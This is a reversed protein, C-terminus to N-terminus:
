LVGFESTVGEAKTLAIPKALKGSENIVTVGNSTEYGLLRAIFQYQGANTRLKVIGDSNSIGINEVGAGTTDISILRLIAGKLPKKQNDVISGTKFGFYPTAILWLQLVILAIYLATVIYNGISPTVSVANLATSLGWFMLAIVVVRLVQMIAPANEKWFYRVQSTFPLDVSGIQQMGVDLIIDKGRTISVTKAIPKFGERVFEIKYEGPDSVNLGYKGEFDSVTQNVFTLKGLENKYLRVTVLGLGKFSGIEYILGWYKKKRWIVAGLFYASYNTLSGTAVAATTVAATALVAGALIEPTINLTDEVFTTISNFADSVINGSGAEANEDDISGGTTDEDPVEGSDGIASSVPTTVVTYSTPTPEPETPTPTPTPTPEPSPTPEPEPEVEAPETVLAGATTTFGSIVWYDSGGINQKNATLTQGSITATQGDTLTGISPCTNTVEALSAVGVCVSVQTIGAQALAIPVYLTYENGAGDMSLLNGSFIKSSVPDSELNLTSWDFNDTFTIGIDALPADTATKLNGTVAGEAGTTELDVPSGDVVATLNYTAPLSDVTCPNDMLWDVINSLMPERFAADDIGETDNKWVATYLVTKKSSTCTLDNDYAALIPGPFGGFDGSILAEAGNIPDVQDAYSGGVVTYTSSAPLGQTIPHTPNTVSVLEPNGYDESGEATRLYNEIFDPSDPEDWSEYVVEEGEFFIRGTGTDMYEKLRTINSLDASFGYGDGQTYIIANYSNLTDVSPVGESGNLTVDYGESDLYDYMQQASNSSNLSDVYIILIDGITVQVFEKGLNTGTYNAYEWYNSSNITEQTLNTASVGLSNVSTCSPSVQSVDAATPCTYVNTDGPSRPVFISYSSGVFGPLSLVNGLYTETNTSGYTLSSWDLDSTLDIDFEALIKSTSSNLVRVTYSGFYEGSELNDGSSADIIDLGADVNTINYSSVSVGARYTTNEIVWYEIGDITQQSVDTDADNLVIRGACGAGVGSISTASPCIVLADRGGTPVYFTFTSGAVGALSGVGGFYTKSAGLDVDVDLSSWNRDTTMNTSPILVAKYGDEEITLEVSANNVGYPSGDKISGGLYTVDASGLSIGTIQYPGFNSPTFKQIYVDHPYPASSASAKLWALLYNGSSDLTITNSPQFIDKVFASVYTMSSIPTHTRRNGTAYDLSVLQPASDTSTPNAVFIAEVPNSSFGLSHINSLSQSEIEPGWSYWREIDYNQLSSTWVLNGNVDVKYVNRLVSEGFFISGDSPHSTISLMTGTVSGPNFISVGSALTVGNAAFLNTGSADYKKIKLDYLDTGTGTEVVYVVFFNNGDAISAQALGETVSATNTVVISSALPTGASNIVQTYVRSDGASNTHWVIAMGGNGLPTIKKPDMSFTLATENFDVGNVGWAATGSLDFKQAREQKVAFFNNSADKALLLQGAVTTATNYINSTWLTTGLNNVRKATTTVAVSDSALIVFGGSGDEVMGGLTATSDFLKVPSGWVAAGSNNFRQVYIGQTLVPNGGANSNEWAAYMGDSGDSVSFLYEQYPSDNTVNIGAAGWQRTEGAAKVITHILAFSIVAVLAFSILYSLKKSYNIM